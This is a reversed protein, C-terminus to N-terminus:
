NQIYPFFWSNKTVCGSKFCGLSPSVYISQSDEGIQTQRFIHCKVWFMAMRLRQIVPPSAARIRLYQAM